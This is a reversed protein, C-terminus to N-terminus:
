GGGLLQAVERGWLLMITAALLISPGYPLPTHARYERAVVARYVVYLLAFLGGFLIMLILMFLVRPYGVVLGCFTALTVDGFGFAVEDVPEGRRTNVLWLYVHGLLYFGLVVIQAIAYGAFADIAGDRGSLLVELIAIVFAPYMVVNLVLRHEIDIVAILAFVTMYFLLILSLASAGYRVFLYAAVVALAVEVAAYRARRGRPARPAPVGEQAAPAAPLRDALWNVLVGLALGGVLYIVLGLNM